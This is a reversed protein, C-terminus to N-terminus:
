QAEHTLLWKKIALKKGQTAGSYGGLHHAATIRHCPILIPIPNARCANGVARPSSNLLKAIEGYSRTEGCPINLMAQWVQQQFNTGKANLAIKLESRPNAFYAQLAKAAPHNPHHPQNDANLRDIAIIQQDELIIGLLGIPSDYVSQYPSEGTM